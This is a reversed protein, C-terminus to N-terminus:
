TNKRNIEFYTLFFFVEVCAHLSINFVNLISIKQLFKKKSVAEFFNFINYYNRIYITLYGIQNFVKM